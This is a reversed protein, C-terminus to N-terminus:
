SQYVPFTFDQPFAPQLKTHRLLFDSHFDPKM